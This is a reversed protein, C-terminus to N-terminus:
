VATSAATHEPEASLRQRSVRLHNRVLREAQDGDHNSIARIIARHEDITEKPHRILGELYDLRYSFTIINYNQLISSLLDLNGLDILYHHFRQDEDSYAKIDEESDSVPTRSFFQNLKRIQSDTIFKAARRAALGELMERIEFIDIVEDKSFHRVFFGRRPVATILKEQELKKLACVLPTRSVGFEAAVKDQYIKDGPKFQREVIMSKLKKYVKLDLNEHRSGIKTMSRRGSFSNQPIRVGTRGFFDLGTEGSCEINFISYLICNVSM